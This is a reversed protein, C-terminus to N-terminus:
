QQEAQGRPYRRNQLSNNAALARYAALDQPLDSPTM